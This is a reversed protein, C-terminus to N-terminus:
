LEAMALINEAEKLDEPKNTNFFPDLQYGGTIMYPFEVFLTSHRDCWDLVKRTGTRLSKDLDEALATPWLGFVPQPKGDSAAIAIAPYTNVSEYLKAVLNSPFFPTDTAASVIWRVDPDNQRVWILGSLIGALPGAYGEVSDSIVPLGFDSFRSPDGNANLLLRSVQPALRGAVHSLLTETGFRLLCKDGGGMRRSQGGALLLGVVPEHTFHPAPIIKDNM